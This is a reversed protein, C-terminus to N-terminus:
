LNLRHFEQSSIQRLFFSIIYSLLFYRVGSSLCQEAVAPASAPATPRWLIQWQKRRRTSGNAVRFIKIVFCGVRKVCRNTEHPQGESLSKWIGNSHHCYSRVDSLRPMYYANPFYFSLSVSLHWKSYCVVPLLILWYWFSNYSFITCSHTSNNIPTLIHYVLPVNNAPYHAKFNWLFIPFKNLLWVVILTEEV